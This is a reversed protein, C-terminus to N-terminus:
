EKIIIVYGGHIGDNTAEYDSYYNATITIPTDSVTFTINSNCETFYNAAASKSTCTGSQIMNNNLFTRVLTTYTIDKPSHIAITIIRYTGKKTLTISTNTSTGYNQNFDKVEINKSASSINSTSFMLGVYSSIEFDQYLENLADSVTMSTGDSSTYLVDTANYTVAAYVGIGCSIICLVIILFIRNKIVKKM